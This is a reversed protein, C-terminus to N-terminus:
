SGEKKCTCPERSWGGTQYVSLQNADGCKPCYLGRKALYEIVENLAEWIDSQETAKDQVNHFLPRKM